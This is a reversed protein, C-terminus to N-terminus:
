INYYRKKGIRPRGPNERMMSKLINKAEPNLESVRKLKEKAKMRSKRHYEADKQLHKLKLENKKKESIMDKVEERSVSSFGSNRLETLSAIQSNQTNIM